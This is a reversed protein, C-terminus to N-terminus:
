PRPRSGEEPAATRDRHDVFAFPECRGRAVLREVSAKAIAVRGPTQSVEFGDSQDRLGDSNRSRSDGLHGCVIQAHHEAPHSRARMRVGPQAQTFGVGGLELARRIAEIDPAPRRFKGRRRAAAMMNQANAALDRPHVVRRSQRAAIVTLIRVELVGCAATLAKGRRGLELADSCSQVAAARRGPQSTM